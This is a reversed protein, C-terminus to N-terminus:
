YDLLGLKGLLHAFDIYTVYLTGTSSATKIMKCVLLLKEADKSLAKNDKEDNAGTIKGMEDISNLDKTSIMEMYWNMEENKISNDIKTRKGEINFLILKWYEMIVAENEMFILIKHVFHLLKDFDVVNTNEILVQHAHKIVMLKSFEALIGLSEFLTTIYHKMFDSSENQQMINFFNQAIDQEITEDLSTKITKETNIKAIDDSFFIINKDKLVLDNRQERESM